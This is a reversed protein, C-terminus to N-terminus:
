LISRAEEDLIQDKEQFIREVEDNINRDVMEILQLRKGKEKLNVLQQSFRAKSKLLNGCIKTHEKESLYKVHIQDLLEFLM